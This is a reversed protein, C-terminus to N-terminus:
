SVIVVLALLWGRSSRQNWYLWQQMVATGLGGSVLGGLRLSVLVVVYDFVNETSWCTPFTLNSVLICSSWIPIRVKGEELKAWIFKPLGEVDRRPLYHYTGWEFATTFAWGFFTTLAKAVGSAVNTCTSQTRCDWYFM